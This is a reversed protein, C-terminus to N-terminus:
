LVLWRYERMESPGEDGLLSLKKLFERAEGASM